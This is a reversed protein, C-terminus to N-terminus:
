SGWLTPDFGFTEALGKQAAATAAARSRSYTWVTEREEGRAREIEVGEPDGDNVVGVAFDAAELFNTGQYLVQRVQYRPEYVVERVRYVPEGPLSPKIVTRLDALLETSTELEM